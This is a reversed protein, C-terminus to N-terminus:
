IIIIERRKAKELLPMCTKICAEFQGVRIFVGDRV